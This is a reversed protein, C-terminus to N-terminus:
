ATRLHRVVRFSISKYSHKQQYLSGQHPLGARTGASADGPIRVAAPDYDAVDPRCLALPTIFPPEPRRPRCRQPPRMASLTGCQACPRPGSGGGIAPLNSTYWCSGRRAPSSGGTRVKAVRALTGTLLLTRPPLGIEM